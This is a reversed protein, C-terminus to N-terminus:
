KAESMSEDDERAIQEAGGVRLRSEAVIRQWRGGGVERLGANVDGAIHHFSGDDAAFNGHLSDSHPEDTTESTSGSTEQSGGIYYEEGEWVFAHHNWLPKDLSWELWWYTTTSVQTQGGSGAQGGSGGDSPASASTRWRLTFDVRVIQVVRTRKPVYTMIGGHNGAEVMRVFDINRAVPSSDVCVGPINLRTYFGNLSKLPM